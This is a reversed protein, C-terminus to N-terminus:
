HVGGVAPGGTERLTVSYLVRGARARSEAQAIDSLSIVGICRGQADIVVLRSVRAAAMKDEVSRLDEESRCVRVQRSMVTSVSVTDPQGEAMARLVLDRDTVVGALRGEEDLVPLFGVNAEKMIRACAAVSDHGRCAVMATRMVDRCRVAGRSGVPASRALHVRRRWSLLYLAGIVLLPGSIWAVWDPHRVAVAAYVFAMTPFALSGVWPRHWSLLVAALLLLSPTLHVLFRALAALLDQGDGFADLAFLGLGAAAAIGLARPMWQVVTDFRMMAQACPAVM